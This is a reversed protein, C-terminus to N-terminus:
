RVPGAPMVEDLLIWVHGGRRSAEVFAPIDCGGLAAALAVLQALTEPAPSDADLCVWQCWGRADTSALALTCEGALHARLVDADCTEQVWRYTGDARQLAYPQSRVVWLRQWGALM